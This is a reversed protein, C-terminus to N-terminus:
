IYRIVNDILDSDIKDGLIMECVHRRRYSITGKARGLLLTTQSPTFGCKILLILHYDHPKLPAGVLLQLRYKFLPHSQLFLQELEAWIRNKDSISKGESIMKTIQAYTTSNTVIDPPAIPRSIHNQLLRIESILKERLIDRKCPETPANNSNSISKRLQELELVTTQLSLQIKKRRYAVFTLACLSLLTLIAAIILYIVITQKSSEAKIRERQHVQYNYFANQILAQQSEHQNYYTELTTHYNHIYYQVSDKPILHYLRPSFLNRYANKRNNLDANHIIRDAYYYATDIIGAALYIDSAYILAENLQIPRTREPIGRILTLASDIDSQRLKVAARLMQIYARDPEELMSGISSARTLSNDAYAYKGQNLFINGLLMHDYAMNFTNAMLSDVEIAKVIYPIAEQYIRLDNLLRSTQSLINGKLELSDPHVNDLASQFYELAAPADGIDSYVRGGYYLAEPYLGTGQYYDIVDLILSDSTHKIYAKDSAKTSLLDHYHRDSESLSAYDITKLSDLADSPSKSIMEAIRELQESSPKKGCSCLLFAYILCLGTIIKSLRM